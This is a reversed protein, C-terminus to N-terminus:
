GPGGGKDLGAGKKVGVVQQMGCLAKTLIIGKSVTTSPGSAPDGGGGTTTRRVSSEVSSVSSDLLFKFIFRHIRLIIHTEEVKVRNTTLTLM